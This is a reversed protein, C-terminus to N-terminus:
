GGIVACEAGAQRADACARTAEAATSYPGAQLRTVGGGEVYRAAGGVRGGVKSWLARANNADRFAGLQVRYGGSTAPTVAASSLDPRAAAETPRAPIPAPSAGGGALRVGATAASAGAMRRALAAGKQRDEPTVYREMQALTAAAPKLGSASARTVLAYARPLDRQVADGNFTMTGLVLQARPEGRASSKELWPVADSKRGAQFLALGYNDAAQAHGQLAAKHFWSEAVAADEAVGRGLKYAQGLNFQADAVGAAAPGRWQEVAGRYDGRGWADVGAKVAGGSPPADAQQAAAPMALVAVTGLVFGIGAVTRRAGKDSRPVM